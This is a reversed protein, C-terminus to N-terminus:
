EELNLILRKILKIEVVYSTGAQDAEVDISHGNDRMKEHLSQMQSFTMEDSIEYGLSRLIEHQQREVEKDFYDTKEALGMDKNEM